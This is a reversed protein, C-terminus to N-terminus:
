RAESVESFDHDCAHRERLHKELAKYYSEAMDARMGEDALANLLDREIPDAVQQYLNLVKQVVGIDEPTLADTFRLSLVVNGVVLSAWQPVVLPSGYRKRQNTVDDM